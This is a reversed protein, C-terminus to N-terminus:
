HDTMEGWRYKIFTNALLKTAYTLTGFPSENPPRTNNWVDIRVAQALFHVEDVSYISDTLSTMANCWESMNLWKIYEPGVTMEELSHPPGSTRALIMLGKHMNGMHASCFLAGYQITCCPNKIKLFGNVNCTPSVLRFRALGGALTVTWHLPPKDSPTLPTTTSHKRCGLPKVSHM